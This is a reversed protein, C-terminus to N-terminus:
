KKKFFSFIGGDADKNETFVTFATDREEASIDAIGTLAELVEVRPAGGDTFHDTNGEELTSIAVALAKTKIEELTLGTVECFLTNVEEETLDEIGVLSKVTNIVPLGNNAIHELNGGEILILTEIIKANREELSLVVVEEETDTSAKKLGINHKFDKPQKNGEYNGFDAPNKKKRAEEKKCNKDTKAPSLM